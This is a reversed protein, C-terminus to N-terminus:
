IMIYTPDCNKIRPLKSEDRWNEPDQIIQMMMRGTGGHGVLMINEEPMRSIKEILRRSSDAIEEFYKVPFVGSEMDDFM